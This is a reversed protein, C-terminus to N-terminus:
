ASGSLNSRIPSSTATSTSAGLGLDGGLYGSMHPRRRICSSTCIRSRSIVNRLTREESEGRRRPGRARQQRKM